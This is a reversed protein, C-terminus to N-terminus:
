SRCQRPDRQGLRAIQARITVLCRPTEVARYAQMEMGAGTQGGVHVSLLATDREASQLDAADRLTM